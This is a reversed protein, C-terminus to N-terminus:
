LGGFGELQKAVDSRTLTSDVPLGGMVWSLRQAQREQPTMKHAAAMKLLANTSLGDGERLKKVGKTFMTFAEEKSYTEICHDALKQTEEPFPVGMDAFVNGSGPTIITETSHTMNITDSEAGKRGGRGKHVKVV